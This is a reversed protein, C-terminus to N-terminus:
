AFQFSAINKMQAKWETMMMPQKDMSERKISSTRKSIIQQLAELVRQYNDCDANAFKCFSEHDGEICMATGVNPVGDVSLVAADEDVVYDEVGNRDMPLSECLYVLSCDYISDEFQLARRFDSIVYSFHASCFKQDLSPSEISPGNLKSLNVALDLWREDSRDMFPTGFFVIGELNSLFDVDGHLAASLCLLGGLNHGVLILPRRQANAVSAAANAGPEPNIDAGFIPCM